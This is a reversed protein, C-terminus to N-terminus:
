PSRRYANAARKGIALDSLEALIKERLGQAAETCQEHLEIARALEEGSLGRVESPYRGNLDFVLQASEQADGRRLCELLATLSEVLKV